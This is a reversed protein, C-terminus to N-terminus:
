MRIVTCGPLYSKEKRGEGGAGFYSLLFSFTESMYRYISDRMDMGIWIVM